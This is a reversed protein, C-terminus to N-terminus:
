LRGSNPCLDANRAVPAGSVEGKGLLFPLKGVRSIYNLHAYDIRPGPLDLSDGQVAKRAV